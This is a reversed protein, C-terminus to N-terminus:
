CGDEDAEEKAATATAAQVCRKVAVIRGEKRRSQARGRRAGCETGVRAAVGKRPVGEKRHAFVGRAAHLLKGRM